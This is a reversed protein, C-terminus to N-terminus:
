ILLPQQVKKRCCSEFYVNEVLVQIGGNRAFTIRLEEHRPINDHTKQSFRKVYEYGAAKLRRQITRSCVNMGTAATIQSAIKRGTWTPNKRALQVIRHQNNPSIM